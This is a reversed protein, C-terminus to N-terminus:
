SQVWMIAQLELSLHALPFCPHPFSCGPSWHLAAGGVAGARCSGEGGWGWGWGRTSEDAQPSVLRNNEFVNDKSLSDFDRCSALPLLLASSPVPCLFPCTPHGRGLPLTQPTALLFSLCCCMGTPSPRGLPPCLSLARRGLRPHLESSPSPSLNLSRPKLDRCESRMQVGRGLFGCGPWVLVFVQSFLSMRSRWHQASNRVPIYM